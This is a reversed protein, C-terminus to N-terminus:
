QYWRVPRAPNDEKHVKILGYLKSPVSGTLILSTTTKKGYEKRCKRIYYSIFNEKKIVPHTEHKRIPIEVFKSTDSVLLDLKVYYDESNLVAVGRGKVFKCIKIDSNRSLLRLSTLM